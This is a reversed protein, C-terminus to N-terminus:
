EDDDEDITQSCDVSLKSKLSKCFAALENESTTAGTVVDSGIVIIAAILVVLIGGLLYLRKRASKNTYDVKGASGKGFRLEIGWVTRPIFMMFSLLISVILLLYSSLTLACFLLLALITKTIIKHKRFTPQMDKMTDICNDRVVRKM